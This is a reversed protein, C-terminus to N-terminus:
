LIHTRSADRNLKPLAREARRDVSKPRYSFDLTASQVRSVVGQDSSKGAYNDTAVGAFSSPGNDSEM